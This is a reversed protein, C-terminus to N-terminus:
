KVNDLHKEKFKIGIDIFGLFIEADKEDMSFITAFEKISIHKNKTIYHSIEESKEHSDLNYKKIIERFKNHHEQISNM